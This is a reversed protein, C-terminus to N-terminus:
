QYTNANITYNIFWNPVQGATVNFFTTNYQSAYAIANYSVNFWLNTTMTQDWSLPVSYDWGTPTIPTPFDASWSGNGWINVPNGDVTLYNPFQVSAVAVNQITLNVDTPVWARTVNIAFPAASLQYISGSPDLYEPGWNGTASSNLLVHRIEEKPDIDTYLPFDPPLPPLSNFTEHNHEARYPMTLLHFIGAGGATTNLVIFYNGVNLTAPSTFNITVLGNFTNGIQSQYTALPTSFVPQSIMTNVLFTNDRSYITTTNARYLNANLLVNGPANITRMLVQFGNVKTANGLLDFELAVWNQDSVEVEKGVKVTANVDYLTFNFATSFTCNVRFHAGQTSSLYKSGPNIIRALQSTINNTFQGTSITVFTGPVLQNEAQVVYNAPGTVNVQATFNLDLALCMSRDFALSGNGPFVWPDSASQIFLNSFNSYVDFSVRNTFDLLSTYNTYTTFDNDHAWHWLTSNGVTFAASANTTEVDDAYRPVNGDNLYTGNLVRPYDLASYPNIQYLTTDTSNFTLNMDAHSLASNSSIAPIPFSGNHNLSVSTNAGFVRIEQSNGTGNFPFDVAGAANNPLALPFNNGSQGNDSTTQRLPMTAFILMFFFGFLVCTVLTKRLKM